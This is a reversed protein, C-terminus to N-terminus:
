AVEGPTAALTLGRLRDIGVPASIERRASDLFGVPGDADRGLGCRNATLWADFARPALPRSFLYGEANPCGLAVLRDRQLETEVGEAVVDMDLAQALDVITGTITEDCRNMGLGHVFSLDIKLGDIPLLKLYALSAYGTGFDDLVVRIGIERPAVELAAFVHAPDKVVSTESIELCIARPDVGSRVVVHAVNAAFAPNDLQRASVNVAM